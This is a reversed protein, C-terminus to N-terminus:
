ETQRNAYLQQLVTDSIAIGSIFMEDIRDLVFFMFNPDVYMIFLLALEISVLHHKDKKNIVFVDEPNLNYAIQAKTLFYFFTQQFKTINHTSTLDRSLIFDDADFYEIDNGAVGFKLDPFESYRIKDVVAVVEKM